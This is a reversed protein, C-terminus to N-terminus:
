TSFIYEKNRVRLGREKQAAEQETACPVTRYEIDALHELIYERKSQNRRTGSGSPKPLLSTMRHAVNKSQGFLVLEGTSKRRLQYVGPGFPASLYGKNRPDPFPRWESWGDLSLPNKM